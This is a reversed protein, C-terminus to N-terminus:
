RDKTLEYLESGYISDKRDFVILAKLFLCIFKIKLDSDRVSGDKADVSLVYGHLVSSRHFRLVGEVIRDAAVRYRDEHTLEAIKYFAISTDTLTDLDTTSGGIEQPILGTRLDQEDLWGAAIKQSVDLFTNDHLFYACDASWDMIPFNQVLRVDPLRALGEGEKRCEHIAGKEDMMHRTIMDLARYLMNKYEPNKTAKYLELYGYLTNSLYKMPTYRLSQEHLRSRVFVNGFASSARVNPVLPYYADDALARMSEELRMAVELYRDDGFAQSLLVWIELFMGDKFDFVPMRYKVSPFYWSSPHRGAPHFTEIVGKAVRDLLGRTHLTPYQAYTDILGFLLDTHEYSRTCSLGMYKFESPLLGNEGLVDETDKLQQRCFADQGLYAFFPLYDGLDNFLRAESTSGDKRLGRPLGKRDDNYDNLTWEVIERIAEQASISRHM